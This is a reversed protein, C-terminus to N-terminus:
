IYCRELHEPLRSVIEYNITGLKEAIEEVTIEENGQRGIIVVEDGVKPSQNNTIPLKIISMNMCIRGIVDCRTGNVIIQGIGNSLKRDIGDNYGVPIIGVTMDAKAKYSCGYGIKEGAKVDKVQVIETKFSLVPKLFGLKNFNNKIEESPWLGYIGIGCRVMDFHSEPLIMTAATAAIHKLEFKAGIVELERIQKKFNKIQMKTYDLDNEEVSALHSYIGEIQINHNTKLLQYAEIADSSLGLRNLGTDIKLHVKLSKDFNIESIKQAHELSIIPISINQNAALRAEGPSIYGLVLIPKHINADRLTMAEDIAIVGLWDAGAENAAKTCQILGHGYANSKVVALFKTEPKLLSKLSAINNKLNELNIELYTSM